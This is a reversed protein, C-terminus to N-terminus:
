STANSASRIFERVAQMDALSLDIFQIGMGAPLQPNKPAAASNVWAVRARCRILESRDPLQFELHLPSGEPRPQDTEIFLGGTSINISFNDLLRDGGLGYRVALHVEVRLADRAAIDLFRRATEMFQHRNIPKLIIEDSGAQRCRELDAERGAQTVMIVPIHRILPDAKIERCAEDGNLGPMYLDMYILQPKELRALDVAERGDRAAIVSFNERSFFTKELELFLKVDDVLLIKFNNM